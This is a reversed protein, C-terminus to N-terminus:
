AKKYFPLAVIRAGVVVRGLDVEVSRGAEARGADIYALAIPQNLTPGLCASTVSGVTEGGDLVVMGPRATRRGELVLGSLKQKPGREALFRRSSM